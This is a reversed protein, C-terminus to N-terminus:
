AFDDLSTDVWAGVDEFASVWLEKRERTEGDVEYKKTSLNANEKDVHIVRPCTHPDPLKGASERFKVQVPFTEGTSKSTLTSLYTYFTKGDRTTRKKAFITIEM